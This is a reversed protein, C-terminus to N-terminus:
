AARLQQAQGGLTVIRHAAIVMRLPVGGRLSLTITSGEPINLEDLEDFKVLAQSIRAIKAKHEELVELLMELMGLAPDRDNVYFMGIRKWNQANMKAARGDRELKERTRMLSGIQEGYLDAEREYHNLLSRVYRQISAVSDFELLGSSFILEPDGM